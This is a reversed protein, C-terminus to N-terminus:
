AAPALPDRLALVHLLADVVSPDFQSGAGRELEALAEQHSRPERYPRETIMASYADCAFIIRSGVPIAEGSLGDPYGAGDWREHEHRVLAAIPTLEPTNLLIREGIVPHGRMIEWEAEELPGPKYLIENPIAVKGVDHLTAGDRIKSVESPPLRLRRAVECALGVVEESHQMTYNDRADIAAALAAVATRSGDGSQGLLVTMAQGAVVEALRLTSRPFVTARHRLFVVGQLRDRQVLGIAAYSGSPTEGRQNQPAFELASQLEPLSDRSIPGGGLKRALGEALTVSPSRFAAPSPDGPPRATALRVLSRGQGASGQEFVAVEECDLERSLFSPLVYLLHRPRECRSVMDWFRTMLESPQADADIEALDRETATGAVVVGNGGRRKALLLARDARDLLEGATLPEGWEAMGLSCTVPVGLDGFRAGATEVAARLREAAARAGAEDLGPLVLVFEDGGYRAIGDYPRFEAAIATAISGLLEDGVLHGHRDNVPKFNDLDALLCTLAAGSRRARWIEERIRVQIAGHNLFGTLSDTRAAAQAKEFAEANSCAVAALDAIAHLTEIDEAGLPRMDLFGVSLAGKLEGDWRMPVGVATVVGQMADTGPIQEDRGYSVTVVPEGSELVRGGVGEGPRITCGWWDSDPSIGHAAVAVGGDGNGLYVGSMDAGLAQDAERCLTDLVARLDLRANLAGAARALAAQREARRGLRDRMELVALATAAQAALTDALETEGPSFERPRESLLAVAPREDEGDGIPVVLVAAACFREALQPSVAASPPWPDLREIVEARDVAFQESLQEALTRLVAAADPADLAAASLVRVAAM